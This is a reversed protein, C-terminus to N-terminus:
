RMSPLWLPHDVGVDGAVQAESAKRIRGGAGDTTGAAAGNEGRRDEPAEEGQVETDLETRFTLAGVAVPRQLCNPRVDLFVMMATRPPVRGDM